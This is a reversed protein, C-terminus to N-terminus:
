NTTKNWGIWIFLYFYGPLIGGLRSLCISTLRLKAINETDTAAANTSEVIAASETAGHRTIM